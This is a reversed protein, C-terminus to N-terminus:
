SQFFLTILVLPILDFLLHVTWSAWISNTKLYVYNFILRAVGYILLIQVLTRLANGGYYTQFYALGFIIASGFSSLFQNLGIKRLTELITISFLEEGILMLPIFLFSGLNGSTNNLRFGSMGFILQVIGGGVISWVINAALAISVIRIFNDQPYGFWLSWTKGFILTAGLISFLLLIYKQFVGINLNIDGM